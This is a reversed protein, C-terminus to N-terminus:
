SVAYERGPRTVLPSGRATRAALYDAGRGLRYPPGDPTRLHSGPLLGGDFRKV